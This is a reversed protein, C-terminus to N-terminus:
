YEVSWVYGYLHQEAKVLSIAIGHIFIDVITMRAIWKHFTNFTDLSWPHGVLLFVNNRGAFCFVLPLKWMIVFACRIALSKNWQQSHTTYIFNLDTFPYDSFILAYNM